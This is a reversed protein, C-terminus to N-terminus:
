KPAPKPKSAAAPKSGSTPAARGGEPTITNAAHLSDASRRMQVAADLARTVAAQSVVSEFKTDLVVQIPLPIPQLRFEGRMGAEVIHKVRRAALVEREAPTKASDALQEPDVGLAKWAQVVGTIFEDRLQRKFDDPVEIRASDAARVLVKRMALNRLFITLVSDTIQPMGRLVQTRDNPPMINVWSIMDSATFRGGNDFTALITASDRLSKSPNLVADRAGALAPDTLKLHVANAMKESLLSDRSQKEAQSFAPVFLAKADVWSLRQILDFGFSSLVLKSVSDPKLSAVVAATGPNMVPRPVIGLYGGRVASQTDSSYKKAMEAFNSANVKPATAMAAARVSDRQLPSAGRPFAFLIHRVAFLGHSASDYHAETATDSRLTRRLEELLRNVRQSNYTPTVALALHSLLTDHHAAAYGMRQYDSWIGALIMGNDPTVEIKLKAEGLLNSLQAVTLEQSVTRAVVNPAVALPDKPEACAMVALCVAITGAVFHTRM